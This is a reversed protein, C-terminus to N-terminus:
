QDFVIYNSHLFYVLCVKQTRVFWDGKVYNQDDRNPSGCDEEKLDPDGSIEAQENYKFGTGDDSTTSM